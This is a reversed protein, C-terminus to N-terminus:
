RSVTVSKAGLAAALQEPKVSDPLLAAMGGHSSEVDLAGLEILRDLADSDAPSFDVRYPLIAERLISYAASEVIGVNCCDFAEHHERSGRASPQRIAIQISEGALREEVAKRTGYAV